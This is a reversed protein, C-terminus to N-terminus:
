RAMFGQFFRGIREAAYPVVAHGQGSSECTIVPANSPCGTARKCEPEPEQVLTKQCGNQRIWFDRSARAGSVPLAQDDVDHTMWVAVPGDCTKAFPGPGSVPAIARFARQRKCGLQQAFNGGSSFGTAFARDRAVCAEAELTTLMADVFSLDDDGDLDWRTVADGTGDPRTRVLAQPYVFIAPPTHKEVPFWDRQTEPRVDTAGHLVFVVPYPVEADYGAPFSTYYERTKGAAVLTRKPSLGLLSVTKGCGPSRTSPPAGDSADRDVFSGADSVPVVSSATAPAGNPVETSPSSCAAALAGFALPLFALPLSLVRM